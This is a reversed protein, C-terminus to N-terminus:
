GYHVEQVNICNYLYIIDSMEWFHLLWNGLFQSNIGFILDKSAYMM